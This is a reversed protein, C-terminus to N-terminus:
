KRPGVDSVDLSEIGLSLAPSDPALRFDRAAADAFRPDAVLSHLDLGRARRADLSFGGRTDWYLNSDFAFGDGEWNGSVLEGSDWVVVNREFTFSRHPEARTRAIQAERAFAFVNGRVVNDRGYHQHFGNSKCDFVVNGEALVGSTGEDFYIGWGGYGWSEVDHFVNGRIVTGPSVGLTYIGGMDSLLGQGIHHVHNKEILNGFAGSEGYGWSWGISLGTYFFHDVECHAITNESAHLVLVGVASPFLKGGDSLHCDVLRNGRVVHADDPALTTEGIKVGGAGLDRIECREIVIEQSGAGLELAYSGLHQLTSARLACRRAGRMRIAGPATVAAQPPGAVDSAPWGSPPSEALTHEFTIGVFEIGEVFRQAELDGELRVLHRLVPVLLEATPGLPLYALWGEASAWEGPTELRGLVNEVRYRAPRESHDDTLRFTSRQALEVRRRAPDFARVRMRSEIWLHYAVVEADSALGIWAGLDGEAAVFETQGAHWPTSPELQPLSEIRLFGERPVRAAPRRAGDVFLQRRDAQPPLKAVLASVSPSGPAWSSLWTPGDGDPFPEPRGPGVVIPVLRRAGSLVPREGHAAVFRTHSDEPGLVLSEGLEYRGGHLVVDISTHSGQERHRERVLERARSLTALPAELTGSRADDGHPAVHVARSAEQGRAGSPAGCALWGFALWGICSSRALVSGM